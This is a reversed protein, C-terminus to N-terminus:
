NRPRLKEIPPMSSPPILVREAPLRSSRFSDAFLEIAPATNPPTFVTATLLGSRLWAQGTKPVADVGLFPRQLWRERDVETASEQFAKRVGIAMADNQAVILDIATKKSTSLKLWSAVSRQASEETWKGKLNILHINAPKSEEMGLLRQKAVSSESPGQLYLVTGGSPLLAACQRAQIRGVELHDSSVCFVPAKASKRLETIYDVERNLVAWGIGESAAARAVAPLATAGVPECIIAHPRQDPATQITRLIQTSQTVADNDAYVIQLNIGLQVAIAEAAHAQEIQYDNDNTMLSILLSLKNM